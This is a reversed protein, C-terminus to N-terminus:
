AVAALQRAAPPEVPEPPVKKGHMLGHQQQQQQQQQQRRRRAQENLLTLTELSKRVAADDVPVTSSLQPSRVPGGISTSREFSSPLAGGGASTSASGSGRIVELAVEPNVGLRRLLNEFITAKFRQEEMDERLISNEQQMTQAQTQRRYYARKAAARNSELRRRKREAPSLLKKKPREPLDSEDAARDGDVAMEDMNAVSRPSDSSSQNDGDSGDDSINGAGGCRTEYTLANSTNIPRVYGVQVAPPTVPRPAIRLVAVAQWPRVATARAANMEQTHM